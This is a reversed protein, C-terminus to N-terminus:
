WSYNIGFSLLEKFQIYSMDDKPVATDDYRVHFFLKTSLYRNLVFNITSEWEIRTWEYNTQYDIRTEFKIPDIITWNLTPKIQSGFGNKSYKGKELGFATEDVEDNGVYRLTYNLPAIFISLNFKPKNVKYDMGMSVSLDAPSMFSSVMKEQNAKYGHCLQTKFESSITYYWNKFAQLGLKNYIRLQDTTVLYDHFEDSPTSTIGWKVELQNEFSIKQKDNYNANLRLTALGSLNSEGGKTWNESVHNQSLQLSGDGYTTWWNPKRLKVRQHQMDQSMQEFEFLHVLKEKPRPASKVVHQYVPLSKLYDETVTVQEPHKLYIYMLAEDVMAADQEGKVFLSDNFPLYRAGMERLTRNGLTDPQWEFRSYHRIPSNYYVIPVFLRYFDPDSKLYRPPASPHNLYDLKGIYENYLYSVTDLRPSEGSMDLRLMLYQQLVPSLASVPRQAARRKHGTQAWSPLSLCCVFIWLLLMRGQM